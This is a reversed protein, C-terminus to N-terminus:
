VSRPVSKNAVQDRLYIPQAHEPKVVKGQDFLSTALLAVDQAHPRLDTYADSCVSRSKSTLIERYSGWGDGAGTWVGDVPMPVMAPSCVREEGNLEALGNHNSTYCGWYVEDMRADLAAFVHSATHIRICGQALAALTSVPIVPLDAGYALGQVIGTAIRLGTFSGPGRGFALADLQAISLDAEAMLAEVMPMLLVAHERPAVRYQEIVEGEVYLAASCADTATEIALIKKGM